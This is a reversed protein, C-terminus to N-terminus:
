NSLHHIEFHCKKCVTIGKDIEWFPKYTEALELLKYKDKIPDLKTNKNLFNEYIENFSITDHHAILDKGKYDCVQCTYYDRKYTDVRWQKYKVSNRILKELSSRGGQWNHNNEKAVVLYKKGKNWTKHGKKFFGSHSKQKKLLRTEAITRLCGNKKIWQSVAYQGTGIMDAVEQYTFGIKYLATGKKVIDESYPPTRHKLNYEKVVTIITSITIGDIEKIIEDYSNGKKHLKAIRNKIKKDICIDKLQCDISCYKRSKCKLAYFIKGCYVCITKQKPKKLSEHYCKLSCFTDKKLNSKFRYIEKNCQKCICKIKM